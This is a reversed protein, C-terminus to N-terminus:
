RRGKRDKVGTYMIITGKRKREQIYLKGKRKAREKEKV